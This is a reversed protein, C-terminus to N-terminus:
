GSAAPTMSVLRPAPPLMETAYRERTTSPGLRQLGEPLAIWIEFPRADPSPAKAARVAERAAAEKDPFPGLAQGEFDVWWKMGSYIVIYFATPKTAM